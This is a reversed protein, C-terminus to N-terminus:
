LADLLRAFRDNVPYRGASWGLRVIVTSRSPIVMMWQQRNGQAAFAQEPLDPWRLSADGRNLWWQYGYAKENESSNPSTAQSVWIESLLRQGNIVGNDLMLQGIRAWDRASAFFYSSGMFVGTSDVEFVANQFAMPRYIHEMFDGYSSDLSGGTVNFYILSLLSATGSSYNFRSGPTIILPKDLAYSSASPVTFLMATTDDGPEYQESFALGDTMTLLHEVTIAAREDESWRPFGPAAQLELLGRYALNGLMIASLSKTMSWGLLPTTADVDQDYAEAVIKGRQVVLLARTNLGLVNDRAVQESVLQQIEQRAPHVRSGGPWLM